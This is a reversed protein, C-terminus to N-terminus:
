ERLWGRSRFWRYIVLTVLLMAGLVAPYGWPSHLEPMFRFNMGYVGVIFTLPLFFVSFVTLVRMVEGTRHSALSLQVNLLTNADDLLEDAYFHYSEANEQVDRFLTAAKGAGPVIRQVVDSTRWLLRKYVTVQHKLIHIERLERRFVVSSVVGGGFLKTEFADLRSEIREMPGLYTDLAANCIQSLLLPLFGNRNPHKAMAPREHIASLWPQDKRHITILFQPSFFIAIKRTLDQVTVASVDASEDSARLIIFTHTDFAEYKPLHEPDLCDSVAVSHLGYREAIETLEAATPQVVDIWVFDPDHRELLTRVTM